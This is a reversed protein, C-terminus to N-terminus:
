SRIKRLLEKVVRGGRKRLSVKKDKYRRIKKSLEDKLQDVAENITEAEARAGYNKKATKIKAEAFFIKGHRHSGSDKGLRLDCFVEDTNSLLKDLSDMREKVYQEMAEDLGMDKALIKVKM